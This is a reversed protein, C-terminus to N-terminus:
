FPPIKILPSPSVGPSLRGFPSAKVRLGGISEGVFREIWNDVVDFIDVSHEQSKKDEYTVGESAYLINDTDDPNLCEPYREQIWEIFTKLERKNVYENPNWNGGVLPKNEKLFKVYNNIKCIAGCWGAQKGDRFPDSIQKEKM